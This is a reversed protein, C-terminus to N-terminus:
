ACRGAGCNLGAMCSRGLARCVRSVWCLGEWAFICCDLINWWVAGDGLGLCVKWGGSFVRVETINSANCRPQYLICERTPYNRVATYCPAEQQQLNWAGSASTGLGAGPVASAQSASLSGQATPLKSGGATKSSNAAAAGQALETPYDPPLADGSILGAIAVLLLLLQTSTISSHAQQSHGM